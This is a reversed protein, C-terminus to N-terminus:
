REFSQEERSVACTFRELCSGCFSFKMKQAFRNAYNAELEVYGAHFVKAKQRM